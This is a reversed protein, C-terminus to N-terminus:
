KKQLQAVERRLRKIEEWMIPLLKLHNVAAPLGDQGISVLLPDVEALEEAIFGYDSTSDEKWKFSKGEVSDFVRDVTASEIPAIDYKMRRTSALYRVQGTTTNITLPVTSSHSQLNPAYMHTYSLAIQDDSTPVIPGLQCRNSGASVQGYSGGLAISSANGGASYTTGLESPFYQSVTFATQEFIRVNRMGRDIFTDAVSTVFSGAVFVDYGAGEMSIRTGEEINFNDFKIQCFAGRDDDSIGIVCDRTTTCNIIKAFAASSNNKSVNFGRTFKCGTAVFNSFKVINVQSIFECNTLTTSFTEPRDAAVSEFSELKCDNFVINAETAVFDSQNFGIPRGSVFNIGSVSVITGRGDALTKEYKFDGHEVKTYDSGATSKIAIYDYVTFSSVNHYGPLFTISATSNRNISYNSFIHEYASTLDPFINQAPSSTGDASIYFSRTITPPIASPATWQSTSQDIGTLVGGAFPLNTVSFSSNSGSVGVRSAVIKNSPDTLDKNKFIQPSSRDVLQYGITPATPEYRATAIVGLDPIFFNVNNQM